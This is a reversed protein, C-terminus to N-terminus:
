RVRNRLLPLAWSEAVALAEEETVQHTTRLHHELEASCHSIEFLDETQARLKWDCEPCRATRTARPGPARVAVGLDVGPLLRKSWECAHEGALHGELETLVTFVKEPVASPAERSWTCEPCRAPAAM